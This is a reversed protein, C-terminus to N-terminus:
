KWQNCFETGFAPCYKESHMMSCPNSMFAADLDGTAEYTAMDSQVRMIISRAYKQSAEVHYEHTVCPPQPKTKGKRQVFDICLGKVNTIIQNSRALLAYAGLQAQYPRALAGTKLDRVWGDTAIDMTGTLLWGGGCDARLSLEVAPMGDPMTFPVVDKGPGKLYSDIMSSIQQEAVNRNPTTDDWTCAKDTEEKFAAFAPQLIDDATIKARAFRAKLAIEVGKHVATGAAAGVSPALQRLKHGDAEFKKRFQKAVARRECDPVGPLM